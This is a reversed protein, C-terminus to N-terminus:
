SWLIKETVGAYKERISNFIERLETVKKNAKEAESFEHFREIVLRYGRQKM